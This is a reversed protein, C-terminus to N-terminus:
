NNQLSLTTYQCGGPLDLPILRYLRDTISYVIELVPMSTSPQLSDSLVDKLLFSETTFATQFCINEISAEVQVGNKEEKEGPKTILADMKNAKYLEQFFM